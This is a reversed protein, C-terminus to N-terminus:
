IKTADTKRGSKANSALLLAYIKAGCLNHAITIQTSGVDGLSKLGAVWDGFGGVCICQLVEVCICHGLVCIGLTFTIQLKCQSTQVRLGM